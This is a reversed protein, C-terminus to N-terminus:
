GDEPVPKLVYGIGRVTQVLDAHNGLKERLRKMHTDLTRTLTSDKYGWVERLLQDRGQVQGARQILVQMLKFETATLDVRTGDVLLRLNERDLRFPGYTLTGTEQAHRRLLGRLRLLLEKPSFPKPLYDDAGLELGKVRDEVAGRATLMIVPVRNWEPHDRIEALVQYGDKQPMMLDLILADPRRAAMSRLAQVGNLAGAVEHGEKTLNFAVLDILDQEDDVILIYAM